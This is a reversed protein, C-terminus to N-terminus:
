RHRDEVDVLGNIIDKRCLNKMHMDCTVETMQSM